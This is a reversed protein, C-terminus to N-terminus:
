LGKGVGLEIDEFPMGLKLRALAIKDVMCLM